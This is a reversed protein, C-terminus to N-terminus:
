DDWQSLFLDLFQIYHFHSAHRILAAVANAASFFRECTELDELGFGKRYLPHHKLQCLRNHGYGHFSNLGFFLNALRARRGLSSRSLTGQFACGIDYGIYKDRLGVSLMRSVVGLGYKALEGSRVMETYWLVIGHRCVCPFIGTQEFLG